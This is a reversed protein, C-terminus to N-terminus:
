PPLLCTLRKLATRPAPNLQARPFLKKGMVDDVTYNVDHYVIHVDKKQGMRYGQFCLVDLVLRFM